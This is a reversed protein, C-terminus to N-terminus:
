AIHEKLLTKLRKRALSLNVKVDEYTIDLAQAIRDYSMAQELHLHLVMRQREPLERMKREVLDRLDSVEALSEMGVEGVPLTSLARAQERRSRRVGDRFCNMIISYLWTRM